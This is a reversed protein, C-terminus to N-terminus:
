KPQLGRSDGQRSKVPRPAALGPRAGAASRRSSGFLRGYREALLDEIGRHLDHYRALIDRAADTLGSGGGSTGGSSSNLLRMGWCHEMERVKKWATRIPIHLERGAAVLSGHREVSELLEARWDSFAVGGDAREIWIKVRVRM